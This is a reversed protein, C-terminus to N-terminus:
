EIIGSKTMLYLIKSMLDRGNINGLGGNTCGKEGFEKVSDKELCSGSILLPVPDASHDKLECPTSHDGTIIKICNIDKVKDLNKDIKEIIKTKGVFDGDHGYLDTAKIHVWVFDYNNLSEIAKLIKNEINTDKGGTAGDVEILDMKLFKAIGKYLGGGAICCAKLNYKEGFSKVEKFFGPGRLLLYNAPILGQKKRELNFPHNELIISTKRLYDNLIRATFDADKDLAKINLIGSEAKHPDSDSVKESLNNGRLVLAGRHETGTKFIFQVGEIKFNLDKEFASVDKIRGARRDIIKNNEVTGFNVRFALDGKKLAVGVGLAEIVGRGPYFDDLLSYGFIEFHATGSDPVVGPGLPFLSGCSGTKALFDLNPTNAYELPTLNGLMESPRDGLGDLIFFLCKM